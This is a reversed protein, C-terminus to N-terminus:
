SYGTPGWMQSRLASTPGETQHLRSLAVVCSDDAFLFRASLLTNNLLTGRASLHPRWIWFRPECGRQGSFASSISLKANRSKSRRLVLQSPEKVGESSPLTAKAQKINV